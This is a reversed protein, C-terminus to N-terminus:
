YILKNEDVSVANLVIRDYEKLGTNKNKAQVIYYDSNSDLVDVVCFVTYGKNINYVGKVNEKEKIAYTTGDNILTNGIDFGEVDIYYNDNDEGLIEIEKKYSEESSEQVTVYYTNKEEDKAVMKRPIVYAEHTTVASFPVKLGRKTDSMIKINIFRNKAYNDMYDQLSIMGYLEGDIGKFTEITTSIQKDIEKLYILIKPNETYADVQEKTLQIIIKWNQSTILKGVYDSEKLSENVKTYTVEYDKKKFHDATVTNQALNEYNDYMYYVIGASPSKYTDTLQNSSNSADQIEIGNAVAQLQNKFSYVEDFQNHDYNMKYSTMYQKLTKLNEDSLTSGTSQDKVTSGTTDLAFIPKNLGVVEGNQIYCKIYASKDMKLLTEERLIIGDFQNDSILSGSTVEYIKVKEKLFYRIGTALLYVVIVLFIISIFNFRRVPVINSNKKAM